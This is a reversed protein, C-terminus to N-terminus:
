PNFTFTSNNNTNRKQEAKKLFGIKMHSEYEM